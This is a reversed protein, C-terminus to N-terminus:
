RWVFIFFRFLVHYWKLVCLSRVFLKRDAVYFAKSDGSVREIWPIAQKRMDYFASNLTPILAYRLRIAAQM